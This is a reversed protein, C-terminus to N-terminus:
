PEAPDGHRLAPKVRRLRVEGLRQTQRGLDRGQGPRQAGHDSQGAHAHRVAIQRGRAGPQPLHEGVRGQLSRGAGARLLLQAQRPLIRRPGRVLRLGHAAHDLAQDARRQYPSLTAM